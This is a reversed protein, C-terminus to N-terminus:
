SASLLLDPLMQVAEGLRWGPWFMMRGDVQRIRGNRVAPVDPFLRELGAADKDSFSFDEGPLLIWEPAGARIEDPGVTPYRGDQQKAFINEGGCLSILDDTYTDGAATTWAQPHDAPGERGRPCFVRTNTEPQAGELWDVSRELWVVSQLATDSAYMLVLDRLDSLSQRVTRPSTVWLRLGARDLKDIANQPNIEVSALVLDPKCRIVDETRPEEPSGMRPIDARAALVPCDTSVGVLYSDLGLVVMNDTMSPVLSVVRQPASGPEPTRIMVDEVLRQFYHDTPKEGV